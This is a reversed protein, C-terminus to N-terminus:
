RRGKQFVSYSPNDLEPFKSLDPDPVIRAVAMFNDVGAIYSHVANEGTVHKIVRSLVRHGLSGFKKLNELEGLVGMNTDRMFNLVTAFAGQLRDERNEIVKEPHKLEVLCIIAAAESLCWLSAYDLVRALHLVPEQVGKRGLKTFHKAASIMGWKLGHKEYIDNFENIAQDTLSKYYETSENLNGLSIQFSVKDKKESSTLLSLTELQGRLKSSAQIDLKKDIKQILVLSQDVPEFLDKIIKIIEKQVIM